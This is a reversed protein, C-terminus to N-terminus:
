IHTYKFLYYISFYKYDIEDLMLSAHIINSYMLFPENFVNSIAIRIYNFIGPNHPYKEELEFLSPNEGESLFVVHQQASMHNPKSAETSEFSLRFSLCKPILVGLDFKNPLTHVRAPKLMIPYFHRMVDCGFMLM